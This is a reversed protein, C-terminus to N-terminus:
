PKQRIEDKRMPMADITQELRQATIPVRSRLKEGGDKGILIVTFKDPEIHFRHRLETQQTNQRAKALMPLAILDRDEIDNTHAKLISVQQQYSHDEDSPAFLLLVRYKDKLAALSPDAQAIVPALLLLLLLSRM